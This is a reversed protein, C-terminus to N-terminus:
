GQQAIRLTHTIKISIVWNSPCIISSILTQVYHKPIADTSIISEDICANTKENILECSNCCFPHRKSPFM